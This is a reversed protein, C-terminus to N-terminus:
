ADEDEEDRYKMEDLRKKILGEIDLMQVSGDVYSITNERIQEKLDEIARVTASIVRCQRRTVDKLKAVMEPNDDPTIQAGMEISAVANNIYHSITILLTEYTRRREQEGLKERAEQELRQLKLTNRVRAVLENPNYPKTIYDVAGLELGAMKSEIDSSATVFIVPLEEFEPEKRLQEFMTFGDIDPMRIDLLLLDPKNEVVKAIGERGGRATITRYGTRQLSREALELALPEDDVALILANEPADLNPKSHHPQGTTM